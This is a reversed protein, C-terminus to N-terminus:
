GRLNTRSTRYISLIYVPLPFFMKIWICTFVATWLFNPSLPAAPVPPKPVMEVNPLPHSPCKHSFLHSKPFIFPGGPSCTIPVTKHCHRHLYPELKEYSYHTWRGHNYMGPFKVVTSNKQSDRSKPLYFSNLPFLLKNEFSKMEFYYKHRLPMNQVSGSHEAVKIKSICVPINWLLIYSHLRNWIILFFYSFLIPMPYSLITRLYTVASSHM